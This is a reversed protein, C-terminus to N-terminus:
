DPVQLNSAQVIPGLTFHINMSVNVMSKTSINTIPSNIACLGWSWACTAGTNNQMRLLQLCTVSTFPGYSKHPECQLNEHFHRRNQPHIGGIGFCAMWYTDMWNQTISSTTSTEVPSGRRKVSTATCGQHFTSSLKLTSKVFFSNRTTELPKLRWKM